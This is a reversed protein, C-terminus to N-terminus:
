PTDMNSNRFACVVCSFKLVARRHLLTCSIAVGM